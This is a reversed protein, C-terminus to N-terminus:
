HIIQRNNQLKFKKNNKAKCQFGNSFATILTNKNNNTNIEHTIQIDTNIQVTKPIKSDRSNPTQSVLNRQQEIKGPIGVSSM